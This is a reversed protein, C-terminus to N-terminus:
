VGLVFNINLFFMRLRDWTTKRSNTIRSNESALACICQSRKRYQAENEISEIMAIGLRPFVICIIMNCNRRLPGYVSSGAFLWQKFDIKVSNPKAGNLPHKVFWLAHFTESQENPKRENPGNMSIGFRYAGRCAIIRQNTAFTAAIRKCKMLMFAMPFRHLSCLIGNEKMETWESKRAKNNQETASLSIRFAYTHTPIRVSHVRVFGTDCLQWKIKPLPSCFIVKIQRAGHKARFWQVSSLFRKNQSSYTCSSWEELRDSKGRHIEACIFTSVYINISFAFWLFLIWNKATPLMSSSLSMSASFFLFSSHCIFSYINPTHLWMFFSLSMSAFWILPPYLLPRKENVASVM